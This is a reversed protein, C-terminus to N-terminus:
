KKKREKWDALIMQRLPFSLFTKFFPRKFSNKVLVIKEEKSLACMYDALRVSPNV